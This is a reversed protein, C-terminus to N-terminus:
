FYSIYKVQVRDTLEIGAVFGDLHSSEFGLIVRITMPAM